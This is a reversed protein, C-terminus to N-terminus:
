FESIFAKLLFVSGDSQSPVNTSRIGQESCGGADWHWVRGGPKSFFVEVRNSGIKECFAVVDNQQVTFRESHALNIDRCTFSDHRGLNLEYYSGPVLQYTGNQQPRYMALVLQNNNDGDPDFCYRWRYVTGSCMVKEDLNLYVHGERPNSHDIMDTSTTGVESSSCSQM